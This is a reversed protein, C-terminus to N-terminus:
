RRRIMGGCVGGLALLALAGGLLWAGSLSALAATGNEQARLAKVQRAITEQKEEVQELRNVRSRLSDITAQQQDVTTQQEQLGKLLVATLKPYALSLMGDAGETVLAPFEEQVEQAILGIQESSPHTSENKFHFRVPRVEQLAELAGDGLSQIQTKLRRDSNETLGGAIKLNGSEDLVLADSRSDCNGSSFSGNGVVVASNDSSTNADNCVGLSLSPGSTATTRVGMAVANFGSATTQNGMALADNGSATTNAGMTTARNGSATTNFGTAVANIGTAATFEGMATAGEGEAVTEEGLATAREGSATTQRGMATASHGSATTQRGMATAFGASATTFSGLATAGQFGTAATADGLATTGYGSAETDRGLAISYEGVNTADWLDENGSIDGVQGVRFAAKAPYWMLRTGSGEAPILDNETGDEVRAGPILLSGNHNVELRLNTDDNEITTIPTQGVVRDAGGILLGLALPLVCLLKCFRPRHLM